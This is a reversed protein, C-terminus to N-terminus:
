GKKAQQTANKKQAKHAINAFGQAQITSKAAKEHNGNEHHTAATLHSKAAAEFNTAAKKHNKVEKQYTQTPTMELQNNPNLDKM